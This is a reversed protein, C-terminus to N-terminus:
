GARAYKAPSEAFAMYIYNVANVNMAADSTRLKFGNSLFDVDFASSEAEASGTDAYLRNRRPNHVSRQKDLVVWGQTSSTHRKIILLAPRFGVAVFTGDSNSNGEYYGFKSLGPVSRFLIALMDATNQNVMNATGVTFNSADPLTDNWQISNDAVAATTDLFLYDTEPDSILPRTDFFMPTNNGNSRNKLMVVEPATGLDHNEAHASGTGTFTQVDLGSSVGLKWCYAVYTKGSQNAQPNAGLSLGDSNFSTLGDDSSTESVSEGPEISTETGRVSDYLLQEDGEREYIWVMDPQFNLGSIIQSTGNGSYTVVAFHERPRLVDPEPLNSKALPKFGTPIAYAFESQGFNITATSGYNGMWPTYTYTPANTQWTENNGAAPDGDTGGDEAYWTGDVGWWLKNNDLDLAIMFVANDGKVSSSPANSNTSRSTDGYIWSGTGNYAFGRFQSSGSSYAPNFRDDGAGSSWVGTNPYESSGNDSDITMEWYWKGSGLDSITAHANM